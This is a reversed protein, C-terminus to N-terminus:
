KKSVVANLIFITEHKKEEKTRSSKYSQCFKDTRGNTKRIVINYNKITIYLYYAQTPVGNM